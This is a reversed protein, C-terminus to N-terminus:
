FRCVHLHIRFSTLFKMSLRGHRWFSFLTFILFLIFGNVKADVFTISLTAISVMPGISLSSFAFLVDLFLYITTIISENVLYVFSYGAM